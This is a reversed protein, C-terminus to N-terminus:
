RKGGCWQNSGTLLCKVTLNVGTKHSLYHCIFKSKVHHFTKNIESQIWTLQCIYKLDVKFHCRHGIPPSEYLVSHTHLFTVETSVVRFFATFSFQFTQQNGICYISVIDIKPHNLIKINYESIRFNLDINIKPCLINDKGVYWTMTKCPGFSIASPLGLLGLCM